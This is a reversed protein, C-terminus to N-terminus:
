KCSKSSREGEEGEEEEEGLACGNQKTVMVRWGGGGERGGVGVLVIHHGVDVCQLGQHEHLM